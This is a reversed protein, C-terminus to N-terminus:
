SRRRSIICATVVSVPSTAGWCCMVVWSLLAQLWHRVASLLEQAATSTYLLRVLCSCSLHLMKFVVFLKTSDEAVPSDREKSLELHPSRRQGLMVTAPQIRSPFMPSEQRPRSCHLLQLRNLSSLVYIAKTLITWFTTKTNRRLLSLWLGFTSSSSLRFMRFRLNLCERNTQLSGGRWRFAM